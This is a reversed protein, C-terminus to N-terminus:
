IHCVETANPRQIGPLQRCTLNCSTPFMLAVDAQFSLRYALSGTPPLSPLHFAPVAAATHSCPPVQLFHILSPGSLRIVGRELCVTHAEGEAACSLGRQGLRWLQLVRARSGAQMPCTNLPTKPSIFPM